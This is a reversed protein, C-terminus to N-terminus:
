EHMVGVHGWSFSIHQYLQDYGLSSFHERQRPTLMSKIAEATRSNLQARGTEWASRDGDPKDRESLHSATGAAYTDRLITKLKAEQTENLALSPAVYAAQVDAFRVPDGSNLEGVVLPDMLFSAADKKAAKLRRQYDDYGPDDPLPATPYDRELDLFQQNIAAIFVGAESVSSFISRGSEKARESGEQLLTNIELNHEVQKSELRKVEEESKVLISRLAEVSVENPHTTAKTAGGADSNATASTANSRALSTGEANLPAVAVPTQKPGLQDRATWGLGVAIFTASVGLTIKTSTTM